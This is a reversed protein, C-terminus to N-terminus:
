TSSSGGGNASSWRRGYLRLRRLLAGNEDFVTIADRVPGRRAGVGDRAIAEAQLRNLAQKALPYAQWVLGNFFDHLGPRVPCARQQFIFQEYAVSTPWVDFPVFRM